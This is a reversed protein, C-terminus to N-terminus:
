REKKREKERETQPKAYPDNVYRLAASFLGTGAIALLSGVVDFRKVSERDLRVRETSDEPLVFFAGVAILAFVLALWWFGARWSFLHSVIGGSVIGFVFGLPNGASFCAFVANKRRSPVDYIVALMGQAPPVAAASVLGMLGIVVDLAVADRAFGAGLGLASFAALSGIFMARRGFLDAIRAFLLLFSGSALASAASLWTIEATTMHLDAGIFSSTVTVVGTTMSSLGVAMTAMLVVLVEQYISSFCAPRANTTTTTTTITSASSITTSKTEKLVLQNAPGSENIPAEEM